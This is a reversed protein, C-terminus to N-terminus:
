NFDNVTVSHGDHEFKVNWRGRASGQAVIEGNVVATKWRAGLHTTAWLKNAGIGIKAGFAHVLIGVKAGLVM